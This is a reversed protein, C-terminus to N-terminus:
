CTAPDIGTPRSAFTMTLNAQQPTLDVGGNNGDPDSVALAPSGDSQTVVQRPFDFTAAESLANGTFALLELNVINNTDESNFIRPWNSISISYNRVFGRRLWPLFLRAIRLHVLGPAQFPADMCPTGGPESKAGRGAPRLATCRLALWTVPVM